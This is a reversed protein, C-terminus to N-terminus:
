DWSKQEWTDSYPARYLPTTVRHPNRTLSLMAAGKACLAGENVPFDPDGETVLNLPSKLCRWLAEFVAHTHSDRLVPM